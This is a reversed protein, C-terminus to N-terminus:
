RSSNPLTYFEYTMSWNSEGGPEIRYSVFAEPSLVTKVSWLMVRALPADGTIHVGAGTKRNELRIDYDKASEGFGQVLTSGIESNGM